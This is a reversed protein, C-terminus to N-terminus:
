QPKFAGHPRPLPVTAAIWQGGRRIEPQRNNPARDRSQWRRISTPLYAQRHSMPVAQLKNKWGSVVDGEGDLMADYGIRAVEGADDKTAQGISTNLLGARKFFETETAGPMLCSVTVGTDKLEERLAFSFSNIFAKTGNYVAQYSGPMFGAITGTINTEVVKRAEGLDQHPLGQRHRTRRQGDAFRGLPRQRHRTWCTSGCGRGDCSRSGCCGRQHRVGKAKRRSPQHARMPPLILDYGDQAVCKALEYGIGTSAGTIVALGKSSAHQAM